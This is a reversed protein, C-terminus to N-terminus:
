TDEATQPAHLQKLPEHSTHTAEVTQSTGSYDIPIRCSVFHLLVRVAVCIYPSNSFYHHTSLLFSGFASCNTRYTSMAYCIASDQLLWLQTLHRTELTGM